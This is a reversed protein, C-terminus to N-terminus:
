LNVSDRPPVPSPSSVTGSHRGPVANVKAQNSGRAQALNAGITGHGRRCVRLPWAQLRALAAAAFAGSCVQLRAAVWCIRSSSRGQPRLLLGHRSAGLPVCAICPDPASVAKVPTLPLSACLWDARWSCRWFFIERFGKFSSVQTRADREQVSVGASFSM